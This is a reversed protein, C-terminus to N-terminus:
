VEINIMKYMWAFGIGMFFVAAGLMVLGITQEFLANMYDRNLTFIVLGLGIPLIGLVIASIKGEATLSNIDRRLRERQTMTSAVTDLLESLNGGVERQISIAMVAWEFDRSAMRTGVNSLAEELPMGLRSENVVRLLERRMPEAVENAAAEVGQMLSYGARMTSALLGLMDPLQANFQKKRRAATFSVFAPPGVLALAGLFVFGFFGGLLLYGLVAVLGAGAGWFFLAEAPRLPLNAQELADEARRLLGRREALDGTIEVARSIFSTTAMREEGEDPDRAVFGDSYPQLMRDLGARDRTITLGIAVAAILTALLVLGVAVWLYARSQLASVGSTGTTEVAEVSLTSDLRAGPSYSAATTTTGITVNLPVSGTTDSQSVFSTRFQRKITTQVEGYLKALESPDASTLVAGGTASTLQELAAVDLESTEIGIAFLLANADDLRSIAGQLSAGSSTDKGDTVVVVNPVLDRSGFLNVSEIVSDYLATFGGVGLGDLSENLEDQDVTFRQVVQVADSFSVIAIQDDAEKDAVFQKAADIAREFAGNDAMSASTDIALVIGFASDEELLVPSTSEVIVGNERIVLDPVTERPGSYLFEVTVADPDRGDVSRVVLRDDGESPEQAGAVLAPLLVAALVAVLAGMLAALRTRRM